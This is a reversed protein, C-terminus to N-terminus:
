ISVNINIGDSTENVINLSVKIVEPVSTKISALHTVLLLYLSKNKYQSWGESIRSIFEGAGVEGLGDLTEDMILIPIESDDSNVSLNELVSSAYVRKQQGGSLEGLRRDYIDNWRNIGFAAKGIWSDKSLLRSVRWHRIISPAQPVKGVSLLINESPRFSLEDVKVADEEKLCEIFRQLLTSKGTGSPSRITSFAVCGQEIDCLVIQSGNDSIYKLEFNDRKKVAGPNMYIKIGSNM